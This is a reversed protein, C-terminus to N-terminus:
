PVFNYVIVGSVQVPIGELFTMGFKSKKAAEVSAAQLLPPGSIAEASIVYGLENITVRVNVIGTVKSERAAKPYVPRALLVASNNIPKDGPEFNGEEVKRYDFRVTEEPNGPWLFEIWLSTQEDPLDCNVRFIKLLKKFGAKSVTLEYEGTPVGSFMPLDTNKSIKLSKKTKTDVLKIKADRIPFQESSGDRKFEYVGIQFNCAGNRAFAAVSLLGAAIFLFGFKALKDKM